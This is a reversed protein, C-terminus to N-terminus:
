AQREQDVLRLQPGAAKHSDDAEQAAMSLLYALFPTNSKWALEALDRLVSRMYELIDRPYIQRIGHNNNSIIEVDVADGYNISNPLQGRRSVIM